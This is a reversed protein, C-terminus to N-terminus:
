SLRDSPGVGLRSGFTALWFFGPFQCQLRGILLRVTSLHALWRPQAGVAVACPWTWLVELEFSAGGRCSPLLAYLLM